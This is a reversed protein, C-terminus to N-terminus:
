NKYDILYNQHGNKNKFKLEKKMNLIVVKQNDKQNKLKKLLFNM